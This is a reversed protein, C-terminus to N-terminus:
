WIVYFWPSTGIGKRDLTLRSSTLPPWCNGTFRASSRGFSAKDGSRGRSWDAAKLVNAITGRGEEYQLNALAAQMRTYGWARNERALKLM